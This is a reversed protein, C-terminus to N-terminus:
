AGGFQRITRDNGPGISRDTPTSGLAQLLQRAAQRGSLIAGEMTAPWGTDTWDGAVWLRQPAFRDSKWRMSQNGPQMSFVAQPDTVVRTKLLQASRADPFLRHIEEMVEKLIWQSDGKPLQRSGSIVVQAYWPAQQQESAGSRDTPGPFIWQCLGGILIAHPANLWPRDFWLHIGTIPSSQLSSADQLAQEWSPAIASAFGPQGLSDSLIRGIAHWPVALLVASADLTRGSIQLGAAVGETWHISHVPTQLQVDVGAGKLIAQADEDFLEALPVQPIWLRYGLRQKLFGDVLVKRAAALTVRPLQEGLASVLIPEWFATLSRPTQHHAKLWDIALMSDARSSDHFSWLRLSALAIALRDQWHLGPWKWLMGALHLPPPLPAAKLSVPQNPQAFFWLREEVRWKSRQSLREIMWRLHHCCEMGVHQCYDFSQQTSEDFFSGARGGLRRRAELLVVPFGADALTLSAAIGALGGGVVAIPRLRKSSNM